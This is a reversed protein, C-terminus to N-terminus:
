HEGYVTRQVSFKRSPKQEYNIARPPGLATAAARCRDDVVDNEQRQSHMGRVDDKAVIM